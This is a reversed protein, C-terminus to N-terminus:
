YLLAIARLAIEHSEFLALWALMKKRSQLRISTTYFRSSQKYHRFKIQAALFMENKSIKLYIIAAIILSSLSLFSNEFLTQTFRRASTLHFNFCNEATGMSHPISVVSSGNACHESVAKTASMGARMGGMPCFFIFIAISTMAGVTLWSVLKLFHPSKM